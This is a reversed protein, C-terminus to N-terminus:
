YIIIYNYSSTDVVNTFITAYGSFCDASHVSPSVYSNPTVVIISTTQILPDTITASSPNGGNMDATGWTMGRFASIGLRDKLTREFELSMDSFNNFAQVQKSLGNVKSQLSNIQRQLEEM